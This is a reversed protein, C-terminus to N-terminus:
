EELGLEKLTYEKNNKVNKFEINDPYDVCGFCRRIEDLEYFNVEKEDFIIEINNKYYKSIDKLFKREEETLLEKKEEVESM